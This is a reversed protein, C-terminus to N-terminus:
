HEQQIIHTYADCKRGINLLINNLGVAFPSESKLYQVTLFFVFAALKMPYKFRTQIQCSIFTTTQHLLATLHLINMTVTGWKFKAQTQCSIFTRSLKLLATLHLVYHGTGWKFKAQTQCSIFTTSLQLLATLRLVNMTVTGWKFWAQRQCSIFTRSLQLLATLLRVLKYFRGSTRKTLAPWTICSSLASDGSPGIEVSGVAGPIM